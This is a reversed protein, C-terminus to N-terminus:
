RNHFPRTIAFHLIKSWDVGGGSHVVSFWYINDNYHEFRFFICHFINTKGKGFFLQIFVFIYDSIGFSLSLFTLLVNSRLLCGNFFRNEDETDRNSRTAM